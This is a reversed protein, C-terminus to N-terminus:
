KTAWRIHYSDNQFDEGVYVFDLDELGDEYEEWRGEGRCQTVLYYIPLSVRTLVRLQHGGGSAVVAAASGLM